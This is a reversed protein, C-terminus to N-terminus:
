RGDTRTWLLRTQALDCGLRRGPDLMNLSLESETALKGLNLAFLITPLSLFRVRDRSARRWGTRWTSGNKARHRPSAAWPASWTSAPVRPLTCPSSSSITLTPKERTRSPPGVSTCRGSYLRACAIIDILINLGNTMMELEP